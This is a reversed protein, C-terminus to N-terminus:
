APVAKEALQRELDENRIRLVRNEQELDRMQKRAWAEGELSSRVTARLDEDLICEHDRKSV